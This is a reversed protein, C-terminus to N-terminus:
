DWYHAVAATLPSGQSVNLTKWGTTHVVGGGAGKYVVRYRTAGEPLRTTAVFARGPMMAWARVDAREVLIQAALLALQAGWRAADNKRNSGKDM